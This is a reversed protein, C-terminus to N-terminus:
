QGPWWQDDLEVAAGRVEDPAREFFVAAAVGREDLLAEAHDPQRPCPHRLLRRAHRPLETAEEGV